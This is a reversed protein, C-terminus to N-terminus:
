KSEDKYEMYAKVGASVADQLSFGSVLAVVVIVAGEILQPMYPELRPEYTAAVISVVGFIASWFRKSRLLSPLYFKRLINELDSM